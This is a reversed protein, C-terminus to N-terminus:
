PVYSTILLYYGYLWLKPSIYKITVRMQKSRSLPYHHSVPVCTIPPYSHFLCIVIILIFSRRSLFLLSIAHWVSGVSIFENTQVQPHTTTLSSIASVNLHPCSVLHPIVCMVVFSSRTITSHPPPPHMQLFICSVCLVVITRYNPPSTSCSTYAKALLLLLYSPTPSIRAGSIQVVCTVAYCYGYM